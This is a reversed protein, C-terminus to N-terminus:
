GGALIQQKQADFEAQTLVGQDLLAKLQTLAEVRDTASRPATAGAPPGYGPAPAPAPAPAPPPAGQGQLQAIQQDQAAEHEQSEARRKGAMYGAGGVMAARLLPRRRGFMPM